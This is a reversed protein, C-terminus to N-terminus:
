IWTRAHNQVPDLMCLYPLNWCLWLWTQIKNPIQLSAASDGPRSWLVYSSLCAVPKNSKVFKDKLHQIHPLFSLKFDFIISPFKTEEAVSVWIGNLFGEIFSLLWSCLGSNHLDRMIDFNWTNKYAKELDFFVDFVHQWQVFAEHFFAELHVLHDTTSRQMCLGCQVPTILTNRELYWVLRNNIM